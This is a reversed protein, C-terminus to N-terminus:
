IDEKRFDGHTLLIKYSQGYTPKWNRYYHMGRQTCNCNNSAKSVQKVTELSQKYHFKRVIKLKEYLHRHISSHLHITHPLRTFISLLKRPVQRIEDTCGLLSLSLSFM